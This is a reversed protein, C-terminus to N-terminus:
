RLEMSKLEQLMAKASAKRLPAAAPPPVLGEGVDNNNRYGVLVWQSRGTPCGEEQVYWSYLVRKSKSTQGTSPCRKGKFCANNVWTHGTQQDKEQPYQSRAALLDYAAM